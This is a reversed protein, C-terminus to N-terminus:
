RTAAAFEMWVTTGQGLQSTLGVRGGMREITRKVVSLGIGSGQHKRDLREFMEFVRFHNEPDIGIGNDKFSIRVVGDKLTSAVIVEPKIGTPGFKAANTLINSICQVLAAENALVPPIVPGVTITILSSDLDPYIAIVEKILSLPSVSALVLDGKSTQNFTLVDRILQDMRRSAANIRNLYEKGEANLASSHEEILISSFGTIARLPARLDHSIGYSFTEMGELLGQLTSTRDGVSLHPERSLSSTNTCSSSNFKPKM